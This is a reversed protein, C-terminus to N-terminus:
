AVVYDEKIPTDSPLDFDKLIGAPDIYAPERNFKKQFIPNREWGNSRLEEFVKAESLKFLEQFYDEIVIESLMFKAEDLSDGYSTLGFSPVYLVVKDHDNIVFAQAGLEVFKKKLNLKLYEKM